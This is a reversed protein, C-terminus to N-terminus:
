FLFVARLLGVGVVLDCDVVVCVCLCGALGGYWLCAM